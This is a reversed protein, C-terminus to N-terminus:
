GSDTMWSGDVRGGSQRTQLRLAIMVKRWSTQFSPCFRGGRNYLSVSLMLIFYYFLFYVNYLSKIFYYLHMNLILNIYYFQLVAENSLINFGSFFVSHEYLLSIPIETDITRDIMYKKREIIDTDHNALQLKVEM